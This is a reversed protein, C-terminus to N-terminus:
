LLSWGLELMVEAFEEVDQKGTRRNSFAPRFIMRQGIRSTGALTAQLQVILNEIEGRFQEGISGQDAERCSETKEKEQQSM